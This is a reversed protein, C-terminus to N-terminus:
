SNLKMKGLFEAKVSKSLPVLSNNSLEIMEDSRNYAEVHSLNILFSKHARFFNSQGFLEEMEKLKKTVMLRTGGALIIKTYNGDAECYVVEPPQIFVTKGSTIYLPIKQMNEAEASGKNILAKLVNGTNKEELRKTAKSITKELDDPDIPKLLYDLVGMKISDIGYQRHASTVVILLDEVNLKDKIALGHGGPMEMDLFVLDPSFKTIADVAQNLNACLDLVVVRGQFMSDIMFKLTERGSVEDDVIIARIM